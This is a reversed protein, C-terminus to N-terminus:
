LDTKCAKLLGIACFDGNSQIKLRPNNQKDLMKAQTNNQKGLM